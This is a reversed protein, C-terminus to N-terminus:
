ETKTHLLSYLSSPTLQAGNAPPLKIMHAGLERVSAFFDTLDNLEYWAKAVELVQNPMLKDFADPSVNMLEGLMKTIIPLGQTFLRILFAGADNLSMSLILALINQDKFEPFAQELFDVDLNSLLEMAKYYQSLTSKAITIGHLKQTKNISMNISNSSENKRRPM